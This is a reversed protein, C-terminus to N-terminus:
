AHKAENAITDFDYTGPAAASATVQSDIGPTPADQASNPKLQVQMSFSMANQGHYTNQTVSSLSVSAIDAYQNMRMMAMGVDFSNDAEGTFTLSAGTSPGSAPLSASGTGAPPAPDGGSTISDLAARAPLSNVVTQVATYWYLTNNRAEDLTKIKPQLVTMRAQIQEIRQVRPQLQKIKADIDSIQGRVQMLHVTQLSALMVAAGVEATVVYFLRRTHQELRKKEERRSSILNISPM